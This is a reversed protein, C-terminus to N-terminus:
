LIDKERVGAAIQVVDLNIASGIAVGDRVTDLDAAVCARV